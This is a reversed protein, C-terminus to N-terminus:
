ANMIELLVADLLEKNPPHNDLNMGTVQRAQPTKGTDGLICIIDAFTAVEMLHHSIYLFFRNPFTKKIWPIIIQRSREDVNALSEDM